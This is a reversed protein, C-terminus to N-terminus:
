KTKIETYGDFYVGAKITRPDNCHAQAEELTLGTKITRNPRNSGDRGPIYFRVIKYQEM